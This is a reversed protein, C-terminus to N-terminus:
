AEPVDDKITNNAQIAWRAVRIKSRSTGSEIVISDEQISVVRGIVGGSTIVEDGVELKSRMEEIEKERKRQPRIMMFYMIVFLIIMPLLLGFLSAGAGPQADAAAELYTVLLNM